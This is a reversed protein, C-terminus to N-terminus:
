SKFGPFAKPQTGPEVIRITKARDISPDQTDHRQRDHQDGCGTTDTNQCVGANDGEIGFFKRNLSYIIELLVLEHPARERLIAPAAVQDITERSAAFDEDIPATVKVASLEQLAIGIH